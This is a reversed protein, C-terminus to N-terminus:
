KVEQINQSILSVFANWSSTSYNQYGSYIQKCYSTIPYPRHVLGRILTRFFTPLRFSQRYIPSGHSHKVYSSSSDFYNNYM